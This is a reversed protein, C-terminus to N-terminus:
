YYSYDEKKDELNELIKNKLEYMKRIKEMEKDSIEDNILRQIFKETEPYKQWICILDVFHLLFSGGHNKCFKRLYILMEYVEWVNLTIEGEGKKRLKIGNDFNKIWFRNSVGLTGKKKGLNIEKMKINGNGLIQLKKSLGM